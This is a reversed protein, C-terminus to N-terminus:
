LRPHWPRRVMSQRPSLHRRTDDVRGRQGNQHTWTPVGRSLKWDQQRLVSSCLVQFSVNKHPLTGHQPDKGRKLRHNTMIQWQKSRNKPLSTQVFGPNSVLQLWSMQGLTKVYWRSRCSDCRMSTSLDEPGESPQLTGWGWAVGSPACGEGSSKATLFVGIIQLCTSETHAVTAMKGHINLDRQDSFIRALCRQHSLQPWDFSSFLHQASFKALGSPHWWNFWKWYNAAEKEIPYRRGPNHSASPGFSLAFTSTEKHTKTRLFEQVFEKSVM